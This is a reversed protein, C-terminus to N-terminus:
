HRREGSGVLYFGVGFKPLDAAELKGPSSDCPLSIIRLGEECLFGLSKEVPQTVYFIGFPVLQAVVTLCWMCLLVGLLLM